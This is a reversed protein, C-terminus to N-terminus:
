RRKTTATRIAVAVTATHMTGIPDHAALIAEAHLPRKRALLSRAQRSLRLTLTETAGGAVSFRGTALVHVAAPHGPPGERGLGGHASQLMRLTITGVCAEATAPCTVALKVRGDSSALLSTRALEADPAAATPSGNLPVGGQNSPAEQPPPPVFTTFSHDVGYNTGNWATVVPRYHYTTAPALGDVSLLIAATGPPMACPGSSGYATSTGYEFSCGEIRAGHMFAWANLIASTQTVSSAPETVILPPPGPPPPPITAHAFPVYLTLPACAGLAVSAVVGVRVSGLKRSVRPRGELSHLRFTLWTGASLVGCLAIVIEVAM